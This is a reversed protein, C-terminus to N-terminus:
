VALLKLCSPRPAEGVHGTAELAGSDADIRFTVITGSGTNAALLWTGTADVAFNRPAEGRTPEHGRSTMRGTAQDVEFIAISDHGRNSGYLFRGSPSLHLDACRNRATFDEPITSVTEIETLAGSEADYNFGTITSDLENIVYAHRGNPHFVFHRPGAGEAVKVGPPDNAVLRGHEVDLRYGMVSDTGLDPVFVNGTQPDLNVSHTHPGEQREPDVSSGEHQVLDTAPGLRGDAGIPLVVVSGTQYNAALTYGGTTDVILQCPFVGLSPQCNIPSLAGTTRDIAFSSVAGGPRSGLKEAEHSAFLFDDNPHIDLFTPNDLTKTAGLPALEGSSLDLRFHHIAADDGTSYTGVFVFVGGSDDTVM